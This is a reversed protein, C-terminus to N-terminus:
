PSRGGEPGGPREALAEVAERLAGVAEASEGEFRAREAGTADVIIVTPSVRVELHTAADVSGARTDFELVGVGPVGAASRALRIIEGCGCDSGAEGLDAFLLVQPAGGTVAGAGPAAAEGGHRPKLWLVAALALAVLCLIAVRRM